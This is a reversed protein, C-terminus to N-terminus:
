RESFTTITMTQNHLESPVGSAFPAIEGYSYFGTIFTKTGMVDRVIEVEEEVRQKMVLKRGVCSILIALDPDNEISISTEAASKAGEVLRDVGARMLQVQTGEPMDGAFTLSQNVEDVSLITRVLGIQGAGRQLSLPFLLGTAPLGQAHIGLYKKYLALASQGDLEYLVNDQSKTILRLQGFAEWGGLSGYGVKLRDSYLGLIAIANNRPLGDYLVVTEAFSTGDGSLGGTITVEPPLNQALGEVLKKGNVNLGDSLVFVHVLQEHPIMKALKEGAQFSSEVEDLYILGSHLQTHEFAIATFVLSNDSVQTDYIEGSTSCGILHAAPYIKKVEDLSQKQKLLLTSGFVIVLQAEEGLRGDLTAEWGSVASWKGQEIKM